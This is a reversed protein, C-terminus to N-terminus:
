QRVIFTTEGYQRAGTKQWWGGVCTCGARTCRYGVAVVEGLEDIEIEDVEKGNDQTFYQSLNEQMDKSFDSIKKM